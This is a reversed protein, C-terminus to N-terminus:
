SQHGWGNGRFTVAGVGMLKILEVKCNDCSLKPTDGMPHSQETKDQCLPCKYTYIPM